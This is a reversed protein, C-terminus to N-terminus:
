LTGSPADGFWAGPTDGSAPVSANATATGRRGSSRHRPNTSALAPDATIARHLGHRRPTAFRHHRHRLHRPRVRACASSRLAALGEAPSLQPSSAAYYSLIRAIDSRLEPPSADALARLTETYSPTKANDNLNWNRLRGDGADYRYLDCFTARPSRGLSASPAPRSTSQTSSCAAAIVAVVLMLVRTARNALM